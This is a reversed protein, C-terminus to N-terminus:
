RISKEIDTEQDMYFIEDIYTKLYNVQMGEELNLKGMRFHPIELHNCYKCIEPLNGTKHKERLDQYDKGNYIDLISGDNINGLSLECNYDVCCSTVLGNQAIVMDEYILKCPTNHLPGFSDVLKKEKYSPKSISVWNIKKVWYQILKEMERFDQGIDVARIGIGFKNKKKKKLVLLYEINTLVKKYDINKRIKGITNSSLGDISFVIQGKAKPSTILEYLRENFIMGNTNLFIVMEKKIIYEVMKDIEPHLFSEGYFFLGIRIDQYDISDILRKFLEFKM